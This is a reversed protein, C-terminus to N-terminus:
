SKPATEAKPNVKAGPGVKSIGESIVREGPKVGDKIVWLSGVRQGVSVNRIDVQNNGNVVAVQYRGQLESVCRQPVLLVGRQVTTLASVRGFQGPRLLNRNNPFTGIIRITGTQPDVQRDAFAIRGTQPYETGDALTLHLPVSATSRLWDHQGAVRGAVQLYEQESIPFNAKIPNVQSVTTLVTTPSVLNGLQVAAIGAIGDILSRVQTFGLNLEAAAVNAENTQIAAKATEVAASGTKEAQVDNDLQSQAIARAQALPTDRKVNIRTLAVQAEAQALQGKAQALQGKAQDLAAQFPRPDIEFLVQNKQVAAGERYNQRVIYGSVQPQIQANTYGELSAVWTGTVPVDQQIVPVVEVNPPPMSPPTAAKQECSSLGLCCILGVVIAPICMQNRMVRTM